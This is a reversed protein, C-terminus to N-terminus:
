PGFGAHSKEKRNQEVRAIYGHVVGGVDHGAGGCGVVGDEVHGCDDCSRVDIQVDRAMAGSMTKMLGLKM